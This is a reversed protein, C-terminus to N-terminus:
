HKIRKESIDLYKCYLNKSTNCLILTSSVNELDVLFNESILENVIIYAGDKEGFVNKTFNFTTIQLFIKGVDGYVIEEVKGVFEVEEEM